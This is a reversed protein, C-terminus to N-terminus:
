LKLLTSKQKNELADLIWDLNNRASNQISNTNWVKFDILRENVRLMHSLFSFHLIGGAFARWNGSWALMRDAQRGVDPCYDPHTRQTTLFLFLFGAVFLFTIRVLSM